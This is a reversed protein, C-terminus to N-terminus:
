ALKLRAKDAADLQQYQRWLTPAKYAMVDKFQEMMTRANHEDLWGQSFIHKFAQESTTQGNATLGEALSALLELPTEAEFIAEDLIALGQMLRGHIEERELGQGTGLQELFLRPLAYGALTGMPSMETRHSPPVSEPEYKGAPEDLLRAVPALLQDELGPKVEGAARHIFGFWLNVQAYRRLMAEPGRGPNTNGPDTLETVVPCSNAWGVIRAQDRVPLDFFAPDEMVQGVFSGTGFDLSEKHM